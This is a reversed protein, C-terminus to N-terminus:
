HKILTCMPPGLLWLNCKCVNKRHVYQIQGIEVKHVLLTNTMWMWHGCYVKDRSKFQVWLLTSIYSVFCFVVGFCILAIAKFICNAYPFFLGVIYESKRFELVWAVNNYSERCHIQRRHVTHDEQCLLFSLILTYLLCVRVCLDKSGRQNDDDM